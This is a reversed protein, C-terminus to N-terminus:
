FIRTIILGTIVGACYLVANTYIQLKGVHVELKGIRGYFESHAKSNRSENDKQQELIKKVDEKIEKLEHQIVDIESM